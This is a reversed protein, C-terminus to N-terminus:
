FCSMKENLYLMLGGMLDTVIVSFLKYGNTKFQMNPFTSEIKLESILFIDVYKITEAIM